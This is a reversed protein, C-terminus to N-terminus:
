RIHFLKDLISYLEKYHKSSDKFTNFHDRNHEVIDYMEYLINALQSHSTKSLDYYLKYLMNKRETHNKETDYSEDWWKDFTKFGCDKLYGLAGPQAHLIFPNAMVIAKACKDTMDLEYNNYDDSTHEFYTESVFHIYTDLFAQKETDSSLRPLFPDSSDKDQLDYIWPLSELFEKSLNLDDKYKDISMDKFPTYCTVLNTKHFNNEFIFKCMEARHKYPKGMFTLLKKPRYVKNKIQNYQKNIIDESQCLPMFIQYALSVVHYEKPEFPKINGCLLIVDNKNLNYKQMTNCIIQHSYDKGGFYKYTIDYSESTFDFLLKCHNNKIDQIVEFPVSYRFSKAESIKIHDKVPPCTKSMEIQIPYVYKQNNKTKLPLRLLDEVSSNMQGNHTFLM